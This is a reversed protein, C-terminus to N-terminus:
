GENKTDLVKIIKAPVGAVVCNSPVDKNVVSGAGVTVNDGITIGGIVVANTSIHVNKGIVPNHRGSEYDRSKNTGITVGQGVTLNEGASFPTIVSGSKHLIRLGGGIKEPSIYIEIQELSPLFLKSIASLVKHQSTRYYFVSRFPKNDVLTM